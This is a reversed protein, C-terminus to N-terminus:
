KKKKKPVQPENQCGENGHNKVKKPKSKSKNQKELEAARHAKMEQRDRHKFYIDQCISTIQALARISGLNMIKEM